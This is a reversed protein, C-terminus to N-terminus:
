EELLNENEGTKFRNLISTMITEGSSLALKMLVDTFLKQKDKPAKSLNKFMGTIVKIKVQDVEELSTVGTDLIASFLIDVFIERTEDDISSLWSKLTDDFIHSEESLGDALDFHNGIVQWSMADHQYPGQYVSKVVQHELDNQLIMGIMSQKPVTSKVLPLISRYEDSAVIEDRFGPGDNSYIAIIKKKVASNAYASAFVAFNAGKSHGGIRLKKHTRAFTQNLYDRASLQGATGTLFSMNFDEKWGIITADTGRFAVYYTNDPLLFTTVSFQKQSDPDFDNVYGTLYVDSFRKSTVMKRMLFPAVKISMMSSMIEEDSHDAFFRACVEQLSVKEKIGPGPVYGDFPTYALESFILNDVENFPDVSLPIDGRWDLYDEINAM